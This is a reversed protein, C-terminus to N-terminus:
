KRLGFLNSKLPGTGIFITVWRDLTLTKKHISEKKTCLSIEHEGSFRRVPFLIRESYIEFSNKPVVNDDMVIYIESKWNDTYFSILYEDDGTEVLISDIKIGSEDTFNQTTMLISDKYIAGVGIHTYDKELINKRHPPSNMWGRIITRALSDLNNELLSPVLTGRNQAINEGAKGAPLGANYVRKLITENMDVPSRHSFYGLEIMEMSHQRAATQLNERYKLPPLNHNERISNTWEIIRRELKSIGRYENYGSVFKITTDNFESVRIHNLSFSCIFVLFIM